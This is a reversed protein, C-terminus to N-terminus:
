ELSSKKEKKPASPSTPSAPKKASPGGREKKTEPLKQSKEIKRAADPVESKEAGPKKADSQSSSAKKGKDPNSRTSEARPAEKTNSAPKKNAAHKLSAKRSVAPKLRAAIAAPLAEPTPRAKEEESAAKVSRKLVNVARTLQRDIGAPIEGPKPWVLVHPQAGNLEMNKGDRITFWGRRPTSLTGLDLIKKKSMSIVGGHTSVGVVKGRKLTKIAHSFIEGNSHTFQNCLVVIPKDYKHYVLYGRPYSLEGGRPRTVAHSPSCLISLLRDATLGGLNNRVDIVMAEKGYSLAFIEHEFRNFQGMQMRDIHLYGFSGESLTDVMAQNRDIWEEQILVRLKKPSIPDIVLSREKGAESEVLLHMRRGPVGNLVMTLDMDAHVKKGDIELILDGTILRSDFDDAPSGPIVHLVKLGGGQHSPDFRVGLQSTEISYRQSPAPSRWWSTSKTFGLHSANLEGNMMNVVRSFMAYDVAQAAMDEYRTLKEAWDVGHFNEDYFYDNLNRWASRFGLRQHAEVDIDEYLTFPYRTSYASPVGSVLWLIQNSSRWEAYWGQDSTMFEPTKSANPIQVKYTGKNGNITSFFGVVKSDYSWFPSTEKSGELAIRHVREHLGDFEIEGAKPDELKDGGRKDIMANAARRATLDASGEDEVAQTLNVYVLYLEREVGRQSVFVVRKGDPSWRGSGDWDPHRSVNYPERKKDPSIIWIDYNDASDKASSLIWKGNPSWEYYPRDTSSFIPEIKKTKLDMLCLERVNRAFSLAKGDPRIDLQSLQDNGDTVATINFRRNEWWYKKPDAPEAKYINSRHGESKIFYMVQDDEAFLAGTITEGSSGDVKVPQRLVTDMVYLNGASTFAIELADSSFVALGTSGFNNATTLKVRRTKAPLLDPQESHFALQTPKQGADGGGSKSPLDLRHFHFGNRYFMVKGNRSLAPLIVPYAEHFTLQTKRESEYEFSWVNFVGSTESLYYFGSGDPFWLPSRCGGPESPFPQTIKGSRIGVQWIQSAKAGTYGKRYLGDGGRCFLMQKGDQSIKGHTGYADVVLSEAKRERTNVKFHRDNRLGGFNRWGSILLHKSDPYWDHPWEGDSHFSVQQINGGDPDMLFLNDNGNRDSQFAIRKGDPSWRPWRDDAPHLTLARAAGGDTSAKWLNGNWTFVVESGDPSLTPTAALHIPIQEAAFVGIFSLFFSLTVAVSFFTSLLRMMFLVGAIGM